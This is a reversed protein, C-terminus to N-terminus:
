PLWPCKARVWAYGDRQPSPNAPLYRIAVDKGNRKVVVTTPKGPFVRSTELSVLEEGETLGAKAAASGAVLRRIANDRLSQREDFGLQYLAYARPVRSFCPGFADSPPDPTAGRGIVADFRDAGPRGLERLVADRFRGAPLDRM